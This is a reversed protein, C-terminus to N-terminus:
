KIMILSINRGYDDNGEKKSRRSSFYNNKKLYTDKKILDIKKIGTKILQNKIYKNLDFLIKKKYFKFFTINRSDQKLFKKLFDNKVEYSKQSICPGIISIINKERSGKKVFANVTKQIIKKFAGRWGAHIAAILKKEPDFLFIPACDATLVGIAMKRKATFVADGIIKKKSIKNIFIVKSSHIQNLTVLDKYNCGIKDCVKKLNKIINRKNDKSGFGCNLSKYINKSYGGESNFFGHSIKKYNKLLKSQIM